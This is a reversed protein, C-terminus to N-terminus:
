VRRKAKFPYNNLAKYIAGQPTLTSKFIVFENVDFPESIFMEKLIRDINCSNRVRGITLHSHFRKERAFGCNSLSEEITRALLEFNGSGQEVGIWIVRPRRANPFCGIGQLKASFPPTNDAIEKLLPEIRNKAEMPVEGLFKLTIHLNNAGVWKVPLGQTKFRSIM